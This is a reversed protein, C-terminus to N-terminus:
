GCVFSLGADPMSEFYKECLTKKKHSPLCFALDDCAIPKVFLVGTGGVDLDSEECFADIVERGVQFVGYFVESGTAAKQRHDATTTAKQVVEV